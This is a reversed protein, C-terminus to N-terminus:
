KGQRNNTHERYYDRIYDKMWFQWWGLAFQKAEAIAKDATWADHSIRYVAIMTGTRDAGRKCHIFVPQDPKSDIVALVRAVDPDKPRFWSGLPVNIFRIGASSAWKAETRAEGTDRLDVITKIGMKALQRIGEATPQGGRYINSSVRFFNPLDKNATQTQGAAYATISLTLVVLATLHRVRSNM